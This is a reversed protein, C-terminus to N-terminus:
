NHIKEIHRQLEATLEVKLICEGYDGFAGIVTLPIPRLEPKAVFVSFSVTAGPQTVGITVKLLSLFFAAANATNVGLSTGKQDPCVVTDWAARSILMQPLFGMSRSLETIDVWEGAAIQEDMSRINRNALTALLM